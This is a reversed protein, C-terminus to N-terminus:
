GYRWALLFPASHRPFLWPPEQLQFATGFIRQACPVPTGLFRAAIKPTTWPPARTLFSAKSVAASNTIQAPAAPVGCAPAALCPTSTPIFSNAKTGDVTVKFAPLGASTRSTFRPTTSCSNM